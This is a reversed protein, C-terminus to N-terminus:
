LELVQVNGFAPFSRVVQVRNRQHLSRLVPDRGSKPVVLIRDARYAAGTHPRIVTPPSAANSLSPLACWALVFLLAPLLLATMGPFNRHGPLVPCPQELSKKSPM